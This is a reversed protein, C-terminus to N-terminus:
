PWGMLMVTVVRECRNTHPTRSKAAQLAIMQLPSGTLGLAGMANRKLGGEDSRRKCAGWRFGDRWRECGKPPRVAM